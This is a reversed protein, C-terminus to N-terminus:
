LHASMVSLSYPRQMPEQDRILTIVPLPDQCRYKMNYLLAFLKILTRISVLNLKNLTEAIESVEATMQCTEPAREKYVSLM